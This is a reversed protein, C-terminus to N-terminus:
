SCCDLIHRVSYLPNNRPQVNLLCVESGSKEVSAKEGFRVRNDTLTIDPIHSTVNVMMWVEDAQLQGLTEFRRKKIKNDKIKDKIGWQAM